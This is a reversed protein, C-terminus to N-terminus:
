KIKRIEKKGPFEDEKLGLYAMLNRHKDSIELYLSLLNQINIDRQSLLFDLKKRTVFM